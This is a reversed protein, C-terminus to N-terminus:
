GEVGDGVFSLARRVFGHLEESDIDPAGGHMFKKSYENIHELIPLDEKAHALGSDSPADKVLGIFDGLWKDLPFYGPYRVRYLDEVFPRIAQAVPLLEGKRERHYSLLTNYNKLYAGQTEKESDWESIVSGNKTKAIQLEKLDCLFGCQDKVLKLFRPDHSLVVVQKAIKFFKSFCLVTGHRRFHDLSTFPDDFVIIKCNIEKDHDLMALFFALALASKDGASLATAFCPSGFDNKAGGINVAIGNITIQFASRPLGGIYDHQTHAIRFGVNFYDLYQNISNEYTKLIGDCYEDLEAKLKIKQKDLVDKEGAAKKYEDCLLIVDQDFRRKNSQLIVLDTKLKDLDENSPPLRKQEQIQANVAGVIDNYQDVTERLGGIVAIAAELAGDIHISELPSQQKNKVASLALACLVEYKEKVMEFTLEPLDIAIFQKWFEVLIANNALKSQLASLASGGVGLNVARELLSIEVKLNQYAENFYTQYSAILQSNALSQSCFPCENQALYSLGRGIWSEGEKGMAHKALHEKICAEANEAVDTLQKSLVRSFNEPLAPLDVLSLMAKAQIESVRKLAREQFAIKKLQEQIKDDAGDIPAWDIYQGITTGIPMDSFKMGKIQISLGKIQGDLKEINKALEVGRAGVIVRYLNKKHEHDISDGAYINEHVFVSDFICVNPNVASWKGNAFATNERGLLLQVSANGELGLTKRQSIYEPRGTMLSRLIACLTTKGRGNEGFITTLKKFEVDTKASADRFRGVNKIKIIKGIM